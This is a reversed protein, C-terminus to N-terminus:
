RLPQDDKGPDSPEHPCLIFDVQAIPVGHILTTTNAIGRRITMDFYNNLQNAVLPSSAEVLLTGTGRDFNVAHTDHLYTQYNSTSIELKLAHKITRWVEQMLREEKYHNTTDQVGPTTDQAGCRRLRHGRQEYTQQDMGCRALLDAHTQQLRAPLKALQDPALIPPEKLLHFRYRTQPGSYHTEIALLGADTLAWEAEASGHETLPAGPPTRACLAHWPQRLQNCSLTPQAQGHITLNKQSVCSPACLDSYAKSDRGACLDLQIPAPPDRPPPSVSALM